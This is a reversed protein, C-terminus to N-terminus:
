QGLVALASLVPVTFYLGTFCMENQTGWGPLTPETRSSTDFHCTASLTDTATLPIGQEYYYNLQWDFNWHTMDALCSDAGSVNASLSYDFGLEHMHPFIGWLELDPFIGVPLDGVAREWSVEVNEEGPPLADPTGGSTLSALFPDVPLNFGVNAVISAFQLDITTTDALGILEEHHLNYHVQIVMVEGPTVYVGSDNPFQIAGQGPAWVIPLQFDVGDGAGSYCPWGDRDPSEADYLAILEGNTYPTDTEPNTIESDGAETVLSVTVHHVIEPIGPHVDYGTLFEYDTATRRDVLFCRYEDFEALEGGGAEPTFEPTSIQETAELTPLPPLVIDRPEGELAGGEAWGTVIGIEEETLYRSNQFDGCGEGDTLLYPPMIRAEVYQSALDAFEAATEYEDLRFPGVGGEQHCGLCRTEFVALADGYYTLEVAPGAEIPEAVDDDGADETGADLDDDGEVDDDAAVDDDAEVDDDAAVDDDGEVDDDTAVDDDAEVDDDAAVDDDAEVDDDAAVDDDSEVDDDAAVDDDVSADAEVPDDTSAKDEGCAAFIVATSILTLSTLKKLV